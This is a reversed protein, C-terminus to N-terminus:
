FFSRCISFSFFSFASLLLCFASLLFCFPSNFYISRFFPVALMRGLCSAESVNAFEENEKRGEAKQKKLEGNEM